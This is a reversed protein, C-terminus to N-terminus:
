AEHLTKTSLFGDLGEIGEESGHGSEKVGGFPAEPTAVAFTNLGVIGAELGEGLRRGNVLGGSFAYAALGFPLRNARELAEELDAVAAVTAVPGFPEENMIRAGEPVDVLVTPEYFWGPGEPAKGGCVASAGRELADDVLSAVAAPRREHALPGVYTSEEMGPGVPLTAVTATFVELFRDFAKEEVYFRTPSVCIQGANRLKAYASHAAALDLDADELVIAPAHGGLEMTTRQLHRSALEALQRGVATSGTFTIARVLPSSLLRKSIQPPNGFLVSLAGEPLGADALARAVALASAPTQEAPKLVCTCGAALAAAAKRVPNVVPFNWPAFAAVVGVPERVVSIRTGPARQTLVRGYARRGEEAYWDLIAAALQVEALMETRAKGQELTALTATEAARERLLAAAGRMVAGRKEPLQEKWGPWAAQAAAVAADVDDDTALPLRALESADAPNHVAVTKRGEAPTWAGALFLELEEPYGATATAAANAQDSM